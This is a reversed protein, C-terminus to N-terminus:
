AIQRCGLSEVYPDESKLDGMLEAIGGAFTIAEKQVRATAAKEFEKLFGVSAALFTQETMKTKLRIVNFGHGFFKARVANGVEGYLPAAGVTYQLEKDMVRVPYLDFELLM